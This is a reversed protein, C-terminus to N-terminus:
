NKMEIQSSKISPQFYKKISEWQTFIITGLGILFLTIVFTKLSLKPLKSQESEKPSNNEMIKSVTPLDPMIQTIEDWSLVKAVSNQKPQVQCHILALTINDHGNKKIGINLLNKAAKPLDIEGKLIPLIESQWYQEVRDFDSLGDSCLLFICDQDVIFRQIHPHINDSNNTGLAQLLAGTEPYQIMDRYFAYGLRVERSALDDDITVQYCNQDNIWYVRSDGVNAFYIQHDVALSMVVTTGMRALKQRKEQDNQENINNNAQHIAHNIDENTIIPHWAHHYDQIKTKKLYCDILEKAIINIASKSAIEGGKHGGLGDCVITLTDMGSSVQQLNKPTPYCSDENHTRETGTHTVTIINYKYDLSSISYKYTAQDLIKVIKEPKIILGKVLGLALISVFNSINESCNKSWDLWLQGLNKLSLSDDNDPKLELLQIMSGNIRLLDEQFISSIVQHTALPQWLKAMQWMVNLQKLPSLEAWVQDLRPFLQPNILEGKEDMSISNYELLWIPKEQNIYGYIQPLHLRYPFLKLYIELETPVEEPVDPAIGPKTDLLVRDEKLLYRNAILDGQAYTEIDDGLMWLYTKVVPTNCNVCFQAQLPNIQNCKNNVCQINPESNSM